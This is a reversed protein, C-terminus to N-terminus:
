VRFGLQFISNEDDKIEVLDSIGKDLRVVSDNTPSEPIVSDGNGFSFVHSGVGLHLSYNLTETNLWHYKELKM